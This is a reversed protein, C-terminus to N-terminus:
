AALAERHQNRQKLVHASIADCIRPFDSPRYRKAAGERQAEFGLGALFDATVTFGLRACVEGLPLTAPEAAAPVAQTKVQIGEDVFATLKVPQVAATKADAVMAAKLEEARQEAQEAIRQQEAAQAERQAQAEAERREAEAKAAAERELRAAEEARIRQREAELREAAAQKRGIVLNVFDDTPKQCVQAFDPFLHVAEAEDMYSRNVFILDAIRSAEIKARALETDLKDEMSALSKLGKVVGPFDAAVIIPVRVRRGLADCHERLKAQAGTVIEGRRREKEDKLLREAMACNKQLLDDLMDATKSAVDVPQVQALMQAKAGKLAERGAKMAKIQGDLDAFDQDTKPERILRNDLFDRLAVEFSKFNDRVAIDGTVTVAVAPLAQVPEAIVVAAAEAPKHEALDREFQRWGALIQARLAPDPQYWCHREEILQDGEWKTAMFLARDAGSVLLQQEMQVRYHLPLTNATVSEQLATRLEANLTKHEFVTDAMFTIGDFSAALPRSLGEDVSGSLPSLDEGVLKEGLPRALAEFRHGDDFRKQTGADVEAAFGRAVEDLLQTRTKYPSCGMMAPADSANWCQARHAHWEPSGQILDHRQM